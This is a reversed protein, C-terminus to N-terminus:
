PQASAVAAAAPVSDKVDFADLVIGARNRLSPSGWHLRLHVESHRSDMPLGSAYVVREGAVCYDFHGSDLERMRETGPAAYFTRSQGQTNVDRQLEIRARQLAPLFQPSAFAELEDFRDRFGAVGSFNTALTALYRATARVNEETIGPSYVGGIAGPVVLVPMRLGVERANGATTFAYVLSAVAIALLALCTGAALLTNRRLALELTAFDNM